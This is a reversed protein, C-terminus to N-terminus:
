EALGAAELAEAQDNFYDIEVIKGNGIRYVIADNRELALGSARGTAHLQLLYVVKDGSARFGHPEVHWESWASSWSAMWDVFGQRGRYSSADPLDHDRIVADDDLWWDAPEGTGEFDELARQVLDGNEQSM